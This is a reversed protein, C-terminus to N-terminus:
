GLLRRKELVTIKVLGAPVAWGGLPFVELVARQGVPHLGRKKLKTRSGECGSERFGQLGIIDARVQSGQAGGQRGPAREGLLEAIDNM